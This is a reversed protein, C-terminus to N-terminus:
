PVSRITRVLTALATADPEPNSTRHAAGFGCLVPHGDADILVHDPRLAAHALGLRGFRDVTATLHAVVLDPDPAARDALSGAPVFGLVLATRGRRDLIGELRVVGDGQASELLRAERRLAARSSWGAGPTTAKILVPAEGPRRARVVIRDPQGGLVAEPTWGGPLDAM